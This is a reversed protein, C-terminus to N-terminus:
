QVYGLAELQKQLLPDITNEGQGALTKPAHPTVVIASTTDPISLVDQTKIWGNASAFVGMPAETQSLEFKFLTAPTEPGETVAISLPTSIPTESWFLQTEGPPIHGIVSESDWFFRNRVLHHTKLTAVNLGPNSIKIRLGDGDASSQIRFHVGRDVADFREVVARRSESLVVRHSPEDRLNVQEGPDAALDFLEEKEQNSDWIHNRLMYKSGNSGMLAVGYNTAPVYSWVLRHDAADDMESLLPQGDLPANSRVGLKELITPVVDVLSVVHKLRRTAYDDSESDVLILPIRLNEDYLCSHNILGHEGLMEGHDSTVVFITPHDIAITDLRDLLRGLHLDTYAVGADYLDSALSKFEEPIPEVPEHGGPTLLSFSRRALFGEEPLPDLVNLKLAYGRPLNSFQDYFPARPRFPNHVEYTHFFMFFRQDANNDLWALAKTVNSELEDEYGMSAAYYGYQDFGQAFGWQPHVFGGGTFAVTSYSQEKLREALMNLSSDAPNNYNIGHSIPDLGTLMSVHSPLTWPAPAFANEFISAGHRSCWDDLHPTTPRHYGYISMRDSRLTDISILVVNPLNGRNETVLFRPNSWVGVIPEEGKHGTHDVNLVVYSDADGAMVPIDARIDVWGDSWGIEKSFLQIRRDNATDLWASFRATQHPTLLSAGLSLQTQDEDTPVLLRRQHDPFAVFGSRVEHHADIRWPRSQARIMKEERVVLSMAVIEQLELQGIPPMQIEVELRDSSGPWNLNTGVALRYVATGNPERVSTDTSVSSVRDDGNLPSSWNLSIRERNLGRVTVLFEEIQSTEAPGDTTLKVTRASSSIRIGDPLQSVRTDSPAELTWDGLGEGEGFDWRVAITQDAIADLAFSETPEVPIASVVPNMISQAPPTVGCGFFAAVLSLAGPVFTLRPNRM